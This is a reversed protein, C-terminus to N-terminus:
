TNRPVSIQRWVILPSESGLCGTLSELGQAVLGHLFHAKSTIASGHGRGWSSAVQGSNSTGQLWAGARPVEEPKWWGM